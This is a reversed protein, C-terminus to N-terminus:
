LETILKNIEANIREMKKYFDNMLLAEKEKYNAAYEKYAKSKKSIDKNPFESALQNMAARNELVLREKYRQLIRIPKCNTYKEM